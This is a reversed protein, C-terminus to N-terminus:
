MPMFDGSFFFLGCAAAEQRSLEKSIRDGKDYFPPTHQLDHDLAEEDKNIREGNEPCADLRCM